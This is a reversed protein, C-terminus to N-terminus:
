FPERTSLSPPEARDLVIGKGLLVRVWVGALDSKFRSRTGDAYYFYGGRPTSRPVDLTDTTFTYSEGVRLTGPDATGEKRTLDPESGGEARVAGTLYYRYEIRADVLDAPGNNKITVIYNGADSMIPSDENALSPKTETIKKQVTMELSQRAAAAPLPSPTPKTGPPVLQPPAQGFTSAAFLLSTLLIPIKM